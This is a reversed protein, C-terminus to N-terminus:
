DVVQLAHCSSSLSMPRVCSFFRVHIGRRTAEADLARLETSDRLKTETLAFIDLLHESAMALARVIARKTGINFKFM